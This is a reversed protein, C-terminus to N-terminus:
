SPTYYPSLDSLESLASQHVDYHHILQKKGRLRTEHILIKRDVLWDVIPEYNRNAWFPRNPKGYGRDRWKNLHPFKIEEIFAMLSQQTNFGKINRNNLETLVSMLVESNVEYLQKSKKM